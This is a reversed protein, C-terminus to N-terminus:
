PTCRRAGNDDSTFTNALSRLIAPTTLTIGLERNADLSAPSFNQSGVFARSPTLMLKAHIYLSADECYTRVGVGARALARFAPAWASSYTMVVRVSVGRHAASELAADIGPDDMEENEVDLFRRAHDIFSVQEGEAGPSWVLDAGNSPTENQDVWDADFTAGIASVDKPTRDVIGFDRSTAYYRATFNFTLIYATRNDIVLSKEHTLAFRSSTWRVPVRHHRLYAYAPLNFAPRGDDTREGHYGRNLLVRVHVGRREAAVLDGQVRPDQLEYMVLEISSRAHTIANLIPTIGAAPETILSLQPPQRSARVHDAAAATTALPPAAQVACGALLAAACASAFGIGLRHATM